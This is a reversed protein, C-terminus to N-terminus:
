EDFAVALVKEDMGKTQWPPAQQQVPEAPPAQEPTDDWASLPVVQQQVRPEDGDEVPPLGIEGRAENPSYIGKLVGEGLTEIQTKWDSRLLAKTEFNVRENFPLQFLRALELEIHELIFGLGSSMFWRMMSEANNFTSYRLDNIIALPVRFARSIGETTMSYAEILQADQSSLQMSEWKLGNTFIPIKGSNERSTQQNVAERLQLIQEKKLDNDTFLGGSPRAMNNFFQSQHGTLASSAAISNAAATIPSEGKLPDRYTNIRIHLVDRAPLIFDNDPDYFIRPGESLTSVMYYISGDEASFVGKTNQPDVLHLERITGVDNRVAVAFANGRLYLSRIANNFFGTRSQYNNPQKLVREVNSGWKREQEGTPQDEYHNIPCMSVTQSLASVCAEVTENLGLHPAQRNQQWFGADWSTNVWGEDNTYTFGKERAQVPKKRFPWKIKM